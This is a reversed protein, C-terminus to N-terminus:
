KWDEIGYKQLLQKAQAMGEDTLQVSKTKWYNKGQYIWNLEGLKDLIEFDYNKWSSSVNNETFRLLYLLIMTLEEIAKDPATNCM